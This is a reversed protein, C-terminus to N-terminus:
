ISKRSLPLFPPVRNTPRTAHTLLLSTLLLPLCLSPAPPTLFPPSSDYAPSALSGRKHTEPESPETFQLPHVSPIPQDASCSPSPSFCIILSATTNHPPHLALVQPRPSTIRLLPSISPRPYGQQQNMAELQHSAVQQIPDHYCSKNVTRIMVNLSFFQLSAKAQFQILFHIM